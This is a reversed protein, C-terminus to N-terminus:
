STLSDGSAEAGEIEKGWESLAREVNGPIETQAHTQVFTLWESLSRGSSLGKKVSEMSLRYVRVVGAQKLETFISLEATIVPQDGTVVVDFNPQVILIRAEAQSEDQIVPLNESTLLQQGLKTIQFWKNENEDIGVRILGLYMLMNIIRVNWVQVADDYYYTNVLPSIVARMRESEVWISAVRAVLQVVLPLRVIPKRYTSIYFRVMSQQREMESRRSWLEYDDHVRLHGDASEVILQHHYAYDYLLALRDPYDHFRRGYGFRWGGTLPQESIELLELVQVLSRKYMSGDHTLPVDHHRVYELFVDLDRILAFGDEQYTLPGEHSRTLQETFHQVIDHQMPEQLEKPICYMLRGGYRTTPFLWGQEIASALALNPDHDHFIGLLEEESFVQHRELCLRLFAMERGNRWNAMEQTLFKRDRFSFIIEQLLSLKSHLSCNLDYHIAIKRLTSIDATSLCESLKM